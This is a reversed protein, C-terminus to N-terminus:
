TNEQLDDVWVPTGNEDGLIVGHKNKCVPTRPQFHERTYQEKSNLQTM